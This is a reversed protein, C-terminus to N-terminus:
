KNELEKLLSYTEESLADINFLEKEKQDFHDSKKFCIKIIELISAITLLVTNITVLYESKEGRRNLMFSDMSPHAYNCLLRYHGKHSSSLVSDPISEIMQSYNIKTWQREFNSFQNFNLFKETKEQVNKDDSFIYESIILIEYTYRAILHSVLSDKSNLCNECTILITFIKNFIEWWLREPTIDNTSKRGNNLKELDKYLRQLLIITKEKQDSYNINIM